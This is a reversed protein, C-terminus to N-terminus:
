DVVVSSVSSPKTNQVSGTPYWLGVVILPSSCTSFAKCMGEASHIRLITAIIHIYSILTFPFSSSGLIVVSTLLVVQNTFADTCSLHLLPPLECSFHSIQSQGCFHLRLALGRNLLSNIFGIAWAGSVLLVCIGKSITEMYCLPDCIATYCDYAMASLIFIDAGAPLFIFFIQVFCGDASITKHEALFNVLM